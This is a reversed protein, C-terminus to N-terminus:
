LVLKPIQCKVIIKGAERNKKEIKPNIVPNSASLQVRMIGKESNSDPLFLDTM